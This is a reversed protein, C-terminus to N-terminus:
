GEPGGRGDGGDPDRSPDKSTVRRKVGTKREAAELTARAIEIASRLPPPPPAGRRATEASPPPMEPRIPPRELKPAERFEKEALWV